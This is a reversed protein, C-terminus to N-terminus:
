VFLQKSLLLGSSKNAGHTHGRTLSCPIFEFLPLKNNNHYEARHM